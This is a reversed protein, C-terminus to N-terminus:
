SHIFWEIAGLTMSLWSKRTTMAALVALLGYEALSTNLM